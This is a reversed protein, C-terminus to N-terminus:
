LAQTLHRQADSWQRPAHGYARKFERSFQSPSVYGVDMAAESVSMGQAIKMAANNLRMSKVFQIPSMTTAQKFKRHFAARSMGARAALDDISVPADLNKSVHAISRAIANGAGFVQRAVPGAQGKLITYYLERLRARGLVAADTQNCGLQVLRLLADCFSRDWDALQISPPLAAKTAFSVAGGANEMEIAIDGMLRPDLAIYVGLLPNDPSATPTGAKVPMSMPCCMYQRSDYIYRCGDLVAEKAGSAIAIVCPEYVAPACPMARTARFLKVGAIDTDVLGDEAIRDAIIQKIHELTMPCNLYLLDVKAVM